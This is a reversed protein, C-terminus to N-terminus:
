GEPAPEGALLRGALESVEAHPSRSAAELARRPREGSMAAIAEVADARVDPDEAEDGAIRCLVGEFRRPDIAGLAKLATGRFLDEGDESARLLEPVAEHLGMEACVEIALGRDDDRRRNALRALLHAVGDPDGLAALVGAAQTREFVGLFTKQLLRRAPERAREDGLHRLGELAPYCLTKSTLGHLLVPLARPDKREALARAAAVRMPPPGDETMAHLEDSSLEDADPLDLRQPLRLGGPMFPFLM